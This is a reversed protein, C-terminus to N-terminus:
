PVGTLITSPDLSLITAQLYLTLVCSCIWYVLWRIVTCFVADQSDWTSSVAVAGPEAGMESCKAEWEHLCSCLWSKSFSIVM